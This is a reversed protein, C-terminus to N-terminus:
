KPVCAADTGLQLLVYMLMVTTNVITNNVACDIATRCFMTFLTARQMRIVQEMVCFEQSTRIHLFRGSAMQLCRDEALQKECRQIAIFFKVRAETKQGLCAPKGYYLTSCGTGSCTYQTM